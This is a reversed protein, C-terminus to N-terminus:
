QGSPGPGLGLVHVLDIRQGGLTTWRSCTLLIYRSYWVYHQLRAYSTLFSVINTYSTPRLCTLEWILGYMANTLLGSYAQPTREKINVSLGTLM